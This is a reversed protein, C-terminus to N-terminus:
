ARCRRSGYADSWVVRVGPSMALLAQDASEDTEIKNLPLTDVPTVTIYDPM